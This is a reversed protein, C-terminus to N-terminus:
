YVIYADKIGYDHLEDRLAQANSYTRFAGCQVRYLRDEVNESQVSLTENVRNVYDPIMNVFWDGPCDKNAYWRHLTIFMANNYDTRMKYALLLNHSSPYVIRNYKYRRCIDVTLDILKEYVGDSFQYPHKSSSSCEITIARQDNWNSGTTWARNEEGVNSVIQLDSGIIYNASAKRKPDEFQKALSLAKVPVATCHPTIFRVKETRHSWSTTNWINDTLVSYIESM